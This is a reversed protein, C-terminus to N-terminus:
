KFGYGGPHLKSKMEQQQKAYHEQENFSSVKHTAIAYRLADCNKVVIGNAVFNGNGTGICYVDEKHDLKKISKVKSFTIGKTSILEADM